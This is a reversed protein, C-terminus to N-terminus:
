PESDVWVPKSWVKKAICHLVIHMAGFLLVLVVFGATGKDVQYTAAAVTMMFGIGAIANWMEGFVFAACGYPLAESAALAVRSMLDRGKLGTFACVFPFFTFVAVCLISWRNNSLGSLYQLNPLTAIPALQCAQLLPDSVRSVISLRERVFVITSSVLGSILMGTGLESLSVSVDRYFEGGTLLGPLGAFVTLPSVTFLFPASVSWLFLCLLAMLSPGVLSSLSETELGKVLLRGRNGANSSFTEGAVWNILLIVVALLIFLPYGVGEPSWPSWLETLIFLDLLLAIFLGQIITPRVIHKIAAKWGIGDFHRVSLYDYAVRPGVAISCYILLWSWSLPQGWEVTLAFALTWVILFPVWQAIRM